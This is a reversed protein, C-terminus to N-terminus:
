NRRKKKKKSFTHTEEVEAEENIVDISIPEENTDEPIIDSVNGIRESVSTVEVVTDPETIEIPSIEEVEVVPEIYTEKATEVKKPIEIPKSKPLETVIPQKFFSEVNRKTILLGTAVDGIRFQSYNLLRKIEAKSLEADYKPALTGIGPIIGKGLINVKM